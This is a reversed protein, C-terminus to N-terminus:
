FIHFPHEVASFGALYLVVKADLHVYDRQLSFGDKNLVGKVQLKPEFFAEGRCFQPDFIHVAGGIKGTIALLGEVSFGFMDDFEKDTYTPFYLDFVGILRLDIACGLVIDVGAGPVQLTTPIIADISFNFGINPTFTLKLSPNDEYCVSNIGIGLGGSVKFDARISRELPIKHLFPQTKKNLEDAKDVADIIETILKWNKRDRFLAVIDKYKYKNDHFYRKLKKGDLATISLEGQTPTAYVTATEDIPFYCNEDDDSHGEITNGKQLFRVMVKDTTFWPAEIKFLDGGDPYFEFYKYVEEANIQPDTTFTFDTIKLEADDSYCIQKCEISLVDFYHTLVVNVTEVQIGYDSMRTVQFKYLGDKAGAIGFRVEPNPKHCEMITPENAGDPGELYEWYFRSEEDGPYGLTTKREYKGLNAVRKDDGAFGHIKTVQANLLSAYFLLLILFAKKM